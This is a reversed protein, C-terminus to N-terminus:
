TIVNSLSEMNGCYLPDCVVCEIMSRRIDCDDTSCMGPKVDCSCRPPFQGRPVFRDTANGTEINEFCLNFQKRENSNIPLPQSRSNM